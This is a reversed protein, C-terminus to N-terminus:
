KRQESKLEIEKREKEILEDVLKAKKELSKIEDSLLNNKQQQAKVFRGTDPDRPPLKRKPKNEDGNAM